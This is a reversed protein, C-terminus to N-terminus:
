RSRELDRRRRGGRRGGTRPGQKRRETRDLDGLFPGRGEHVREGGWGIVPGGQGESVEPGRPGWQLRGMGLLAEKWAGPPLAKPEAQDRSEGEGWDDGGQPTEGRVM